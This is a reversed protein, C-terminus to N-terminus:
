GCDTMRLVEVVLNAQELRTIAEVLRGNQYYCNFCLRVDFEIIDDKGSLHKSGNEDCSRKCEYCTLDM